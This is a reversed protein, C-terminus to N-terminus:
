RGLDSCACYDARLKQYCYWALIVEHHPDGAALKVNPRRVQKETPDEAEIQLTRRIVHLPHGARGRPGM